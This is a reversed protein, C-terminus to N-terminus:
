NCGVSPTISVSALDHTDIDQLSLQVSSNISKTGNFTIALEANLSDARNLGNIPQGSTNYFTVLFDTLVSSCTSHIFNGASDKLIVAIGLQRNPLTANNILRLTNKDYFTHSDKSSFFRSGYIVEIDPSDGCMTVIPSNKNIRGHDSKAGTSLANALGNCVKSSAAIVTVAENFSTLWEKSLSLNFPVNLYQQRQNSIRFETDGDNITFANDPYSSLVASLLLDGDNRSNIQTEIQTTLQEGNIMLTKNNSALMREAIRSSAVKVDMVVIWNTGNFESTIITYDNVYGASYSAIFDRVIKDNSAELEGVIVSGVVQEIASRFGARKASDVTSGVGEVQITVAPRNGATKTIRNSQAALSQTVTSLLVIIMWTRLMVSRRYNVLKRLKKYVNYL